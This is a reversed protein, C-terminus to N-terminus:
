TIRASEDANVRRKTHCLENAVRDVQRRAKGRATSVSVGQAPGSRWFRCFTIDFRANSNKRGALITASMDPRGASVQTKLPTISM